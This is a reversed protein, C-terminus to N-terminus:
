AHWIMGAIQTMVILTMAILLAMEMTDLDMTTSAVPM